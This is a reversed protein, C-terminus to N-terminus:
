IKKQFEEQLGSDNEIYSIISEYNLTDSIKNLSKTVAKVLNDEKQEESIDGKFIDKYFTHYFADDMSILFSTLHEGNEMLMMSLTFRNYIEQVEPKLILNKKKFRVLKITYPNESFLFKKASIHNGEYLFKNVLLLYEKRSMMMEFKLIDVAKLNELIYKKNIRPKKVTKMQAKKYTM